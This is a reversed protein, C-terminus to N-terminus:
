PSNTLLRSVHGSLVPLPGLVLLYGAGLAAFGALLAGLVAAVAFHPLTPLFMTRWTASWGRARDLAVAAAVLGTNVLFLSTAAALFAPIGGGLSALVAAATATAVLVTAVNFIARRAALKGAAGLTTALVGALAIACAARGGLAVIGALAFADTPVFWTSKGSAKVCRLGSVAALLLLMGFTWPDANERPPLLWPLLAGALATAAVLFSLM